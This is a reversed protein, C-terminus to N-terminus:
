VAAASWLSVRATLLYAKGAQLAFTIVQEIGENAADTQVFRVFQGQDAGPIRDNASPTGVATWGSDEEMDGSVVLNRGDTVLTLTPQRPLERERLRLRRTDEPTWMPTSCTTPSIALRRRMSGPRRHGTPTTKGNPSWNLRTANGNADVQDAPRFENNPTQFRFNGAPDKAGLYLSRDFQTTKRSAVIEETLSQHPVFKLTTTLLAPNTGV